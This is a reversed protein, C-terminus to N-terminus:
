AAVAEGAEAAQKNIKSEALETFKKDGTKSDELSQNTERVADQKGIAKAYGDLSGYSAVRFLQQQNAAVILAADRIPGSDTNKIMEEVERVMANAIHNDERHVQEGLKQFAQEVTTAYDKSKTATKSFLDKLDADSAADAMKPAAEAIKEEFDLVYTMATTLLQQVSQIKM